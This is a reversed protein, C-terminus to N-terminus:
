GRIPSEATKLSVNLRDTEAEVLPGGDWFRTVGLPDIVVVEDAVRGLAGIKPEDVFM